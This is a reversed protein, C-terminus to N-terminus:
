LVSSRQVKMGKQNSDLLPLDLIPGLGAKGKQLESTNM